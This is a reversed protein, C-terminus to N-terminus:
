VENEGKSWRRDRPWGEIPGRRPGRALTRWSRAVRRGTKRQEGGDCGRAGLALWERKGGGSVAAAAGSFGTTCTTRSAAADGLSLAPLRARGAAVADGDAGRLSGSGDIADFRRQSCHARSATGDGTPM